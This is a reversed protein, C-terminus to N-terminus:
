GRMNSRGQELEYAEPTLPAIRHVRVIVTFVEFGASSAEVGQHKYRDCLAFLETLFREQGQSLLSSNV